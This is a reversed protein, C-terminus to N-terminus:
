RDLWNLGQRLQRQLRALPSHAIPQPRASGKRSPANPDSPSSEDSDEADDAYYSYATRYDYSGYGYRYGYQYGYRYGYARNETVDERVANTVV